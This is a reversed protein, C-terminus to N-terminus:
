ALGTLRVGAHARYRKNVNVIVATLGELTRAGALPGADIARGAVLQGALGLVLEKSDADDGCVLTDEDPLDAALNSAALSHLGAVVPAGVADAVREALSRAELTPRVGGSGFRLEAAVCLLPTSALPGALEAATEIAGEAKVALVALDVGRVCDANTAGSVGLEAAAEEARSADRSGLVVEHGAERLRLALAAGFKGTGGIIGVKMGPLKFNRPQLWLPRPSAAALM